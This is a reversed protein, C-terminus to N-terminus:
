YASRPATRPRFTDTSREGGTGGRTLPVVRRDAHYGMRDLLTALSMSEIGLRTAEGSLETFGKILAPATKETPADGKVFFRTELTMKGAITGDPLLECDVVGGNTTILSKVMEQDSKGDGDVDLFGALAFHTKQGKRFSPSYVKDGQLIPDALEDELIRAEARHADMVKTVEIRGKIKGKTVGTEAQDYVSFSMQRKLGDAEGLDIWVLRSGQDVYTVEGDPTEYTTVRNRMREDKFAEVLTALQTKERELREIEEQKSAQLQDIQTNRAALDATLKQNQTKQTDLRTTFTTRESSYDSQAAALANEAKQARAIEANRAQERQAELDRQIVIADALSKNRNGITTVLHEPLSRYNLKDGTFGAGYMNMDQEYNSWIQEMLKDGGLSQKISALEAEKKEEYGLIHKLLQNQFQLTLAAQEAQRAKAREAQAMKIKEESKRFYVYTTVALVVTVMVFLILAVQLGQSERSAM